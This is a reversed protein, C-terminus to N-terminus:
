RIMDMVMLDNNSASTQSVRQDFLNANNFAPPPHNVRHRQPMTSQSGGTLQVPSLETTNEFYAPHSLSGVHSCLEGTATVVLKFDYLLNSSQESASSSTSMPPSGHSFFPDLQRVVHQTQHREVHARPEFAPPIEAVLSGTPFPAPKPRSAPPVNAEVIPIDYVCDDEDTTNSNRDNAEM